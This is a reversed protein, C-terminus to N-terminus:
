KTVLLVEVPVVRFGIMFRRHAFYKGGPDAEKIRGYVLSMMAM